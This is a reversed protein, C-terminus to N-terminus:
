PTAADNQANLWAVSFAVHKIVKRQWTYVLHVRGDTTQLLSPYSFEGGPEAVVTAVRNWSNGHDSSIALRLNGRGKKSDNFALLLRGDSLRLADLGSDPNPLATPQPASWHRGSDTTRSLMIARSGDAPRCLALAEDSTLPVLSPQFATSGSTMRSKTASVGTSSGRLWLMESFKGLAEHYIPLAWAGDGLAVPKNKVLESINFFPSLTLRHSCTWTRGEDFSRKVNLSSGSWGGVAVTVYVLWLSREDERQDAFIVANGVKRVYRQLERSASERTVVARPPTWAGSEGPTRISFYIAVDQDGERTGGYWVAGLKGEALECISAVHASNTTQAPDIVEEHHDGTNGLPRPLDLGRQELTAPHPNDPERWLPLLNLVLALAVLVTRLIKNPTVPM